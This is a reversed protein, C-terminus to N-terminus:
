PILPNRNRSAEIERLRQRRFVSRAIEVSRRIEEDSGFGSAEPASASGTASSSPIPSSNRSRLTSYLLERRTRSSSLAASRNASHSSVEERRLTQRDTASRLQREMERIRERDLRLIDVLRRRSGQLRDQVNRIRDRIESPELNAAYNRYSTPQSQPESSSTAARPPRALSDPDAFRMIGYLDDESDSDSSLSSIPRLPASLATATSSQATEDHLAQRRYENAARVRRRISDLVQTRRLDSSMAADWDFASSSSTAPADTAAAEHSQFNLRGKFFEESNPDPHDPNWRGPGKSTSEPTFTPYKTSWLPRGM